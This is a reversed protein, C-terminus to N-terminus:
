LQILDMGILSLGKEVVHIPIKSEAQGCKVFGYFCGLVPIKESSYSTLHTQPPLLPLQGLKEYDGSNLLTKPSGTDVLLKFKVGNIQIDCYWANKSIKEMTTCVIVDDSLFDNQDVSEEFDSSDNTNIYKVKETSRCHKAFHGVKKCKNCTIGKAKCESSNALHKFSGCRYCKKKKEIDKTEKFKGKVNRYGKSKSMGKVYNVTSESKKTSDCLTKIDETAQEIQEVHKLVLDLTIDKTEFLLRDQLRENNCKHIIQDRIMESENAGYKCPEALERLARYYSKISEGALQERQKFKIRAIVTM